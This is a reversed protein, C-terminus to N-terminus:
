KSNVTEGTKSELKKVDSEDLYDKNFRIGFVLTGVFLPLLWIFYIMIATGPMFGLVTGTFKSHDMLNLAGFGVIWIILLSILSIKLGKGIKNRRIAGLIMWSAMVVPFALAFLLPLKAIQAILMVVAGILLINVWTDNKM